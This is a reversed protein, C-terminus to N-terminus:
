NLNVLCGLNRHYIVTKLFTWYCLQSCESMFPWISEKCLQRESLVTVVSSIGESLWRLTNATLRLSYASHTGTDSSFTNAVHHFPFRLNIFVRLSSKTPTSLQRNPVYDSQLPMPFTSSEGLLEGVVKHYEWPCFVNQILFFLILIFDQLWTVDTVPQEWSKRVLQSPGHLIKWIFHTLFCDGAKKLGVLLSVSLSLNWFWCSSRRDIQVVAISTEMKVEEEGLWCIVETLLVTSVM